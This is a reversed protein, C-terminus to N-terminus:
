AVKFNSANKFQFPCCRSLDLPQVKVWEILQAMEEDTLKHSVTSKDTAKTRTSWFFHIVFFKDIEDGVITVSKGPVPMASKGYLYQKEGNNLAMATFWHGFDEMTLARWHPLLDRYFSQKFALWNWEATLNYWKSFRSNYM